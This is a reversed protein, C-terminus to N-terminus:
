TSARLIITPYYKKMIEPPLITFNVSKVPKKNQKTKTKNKLNM